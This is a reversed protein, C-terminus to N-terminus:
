ELSDGFRAYPLTSKGYAKELNEVRAADREVRM